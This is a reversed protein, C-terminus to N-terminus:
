ETNHRVERMKKRHEAMKKKLAKIREQQQKTAKKKSSRIRSDKFKDTLNIKPEKWDPHPYPIKSDVWADMAEKSQAHIMYNFRMDRNLEIADLNAAYEYMSYVDEWYM